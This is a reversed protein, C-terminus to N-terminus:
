ALVVIETEPKEQAWADVHMMGTGIRSAVGGVREVLLFEYMCFPKYADYRQRDFPLYHAAHETSVEEPYWAPEASVDEDRYSDKQFEDHDASTAAESSVPPGDKSRDKRERIKKPTLSHAIRAIRVAAYKKEHRMENALHTPVRCIGTFKGDDDQLNLVWTPPMSRTVSAHEDPTNALMLAHLIATSQSNWDKPMNIGVTQAELRLYHRSNDPDCIPGPRPGPATPHLFWADPDSAHYFFPVGGNSKDEHWEKRWESVSTSRGGDQSSPGRFEASTFMMQETSSRVAPREIVWRVRSLRERASNTVAGEWGAWSWSPFIPELSNPSPCGLNKCDTDPCVRRRIEGVPEWMLCYDLESQPLGYLFSSRFIPEMKAEIGRFANLIDCKKTIDRSTFNEVTVRYTVTNISWHNPIRDMGTDDMPYTVRRRVEQAVDSDEKMLSPTHSCRFFMMQPTLFLKRKSLVREQFTWARTNWKSESVSRTFDWPRNALRHGQVIETRQIINRSGPTVGPLSAEAGDGCTAAITLVASGYIVGMARIQLAKDRDDDQIICLADVWLYRDGIERCVEMADTITQPIRHRFEPKDLPRGPGMVIDRNAMELRLQPAKPWVYSLNVYRMSSDAEVIRMDTVDILRLNPPLETRSEPDLSDSVEKHLGCGGRCVAIWFLALLYDLKELKIPRGRGSTGLAWNEAVLQIQRTPQSIEKRHSVWLLLVRPRSADHTEFTSVLSLMVPKGEHETPVMEDDQGKANDMAARVLRCFACSQRKLVDSYSGLQIEYDGGVHYLPTEFLMFRFNIHRCTGCLYSKDSEDLVVPDKLWWKRKSLDDEAPM